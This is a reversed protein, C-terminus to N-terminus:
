WGIFCWWGISNVNNKKVNYPGKGEVAEIDLYCAVLESTVFRLGSCHEM